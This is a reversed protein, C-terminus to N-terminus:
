EGAVQIVAAYAPKPQCARDFLLPYDTRGKIPWDNKWNDGDTVGWFTVRDVVGAHKKFIRFLDAYRKALQQQVVDPLGNAYPNLRPNQAIKLTVDATQRSTAAPLVDIDLETM